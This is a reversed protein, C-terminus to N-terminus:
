NAQILSALDRTEIRVVSLQRGSPQATQESARFAWERGVGAARVARWRVDGVPVVRFSAARVGAWDGGVDAGRQEHLGHGDAGTCRGCKAREEGDGREASKKPACCVV